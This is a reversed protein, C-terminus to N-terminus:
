ESLDFHINIAASKLIPWPGLSDVAVRKEEVVEAAEQADDPVIEALDCDSVRLQTQSEVIFGTHFRFSIAKGWRQIM